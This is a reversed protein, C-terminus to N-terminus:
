VPITEAVVANFNRHPYLRRSPLQASANGIAREACGGSLSVLVKGVGWPNFRITLASQFDEQQYRASPSAKVPCLTIIGLGQRM